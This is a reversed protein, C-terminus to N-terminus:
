LLIIFCSALLSLSVVLCGTIFLNSLDLGLGFDWMIHRIGNMSHFCVTSLLLYFIIKVLFFIITFIAYIFSYSLFSGLLNMLISSCLLIIALLSGTIRHFISVVSTIQPKYAYLHPSLSRNEKNIHM